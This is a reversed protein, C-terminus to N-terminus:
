SLDWIDRRFFALDRMVLGVPSGRLQLGPDVQSEM